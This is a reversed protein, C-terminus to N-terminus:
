SYFNIFIPVYYHHPNGVNPLVLDALPALYHKKNIEYQWFYV